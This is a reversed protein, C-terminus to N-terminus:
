VCWCGCVIFVCLGIFFGFSFVNVLCGRCCVLLFVSCGMWLWM